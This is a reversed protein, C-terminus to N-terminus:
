RRFILFEDKLILIYIHM